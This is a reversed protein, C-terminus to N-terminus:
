IKSFVMLSERLYPPYLVVIHQNLVVKFKVSQVKFKYLLSFGILRVVLVALVLLVVLGAAVVLVCVFAVRFLSYNRGSIGSM